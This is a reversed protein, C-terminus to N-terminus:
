INTNKIIGNQSQKIGFRLLLPGLSESLIVGIGVITIVMTAETDLGLNHLQNFALGALAIAIGGQTILFYHLNNKINAPLSSTKTIFFTGGVKGILRLVFYAIIFLLGSGLAYSINISVGMVIYFMLVVPVLLIEIHLIHETLIEYKTEMTRLMIGFFLMTLIVSGNLTLTGGLIVLSIGLLWEILSREELHKRRVM